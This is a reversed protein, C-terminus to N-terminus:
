VCDLSVRGDRVTLADLRGTGVQHANDADAPAAHLAEAIGGVGGRDPREDDAVPRAGVGHGDGADTRLPEADVGLVVGADVGTQAVHVRRDPSVVLGVAVGYIGADAVAEQPGTFLRFDRITRPLRDEPEEPLTQFVLAASPRGQPIRAGEAAGARKGRAPRERDTDHRPPTESRRRRVG